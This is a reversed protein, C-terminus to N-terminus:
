SSEDDWTEHIWTFMNRDGKNPGYGAWHDNGVIEIVFKRNGPAIMNLADRIEAATLEDDLDVLLWFNEIWHWWSLNNKGIFVGLEAHQSESLGEVAVVFRKM